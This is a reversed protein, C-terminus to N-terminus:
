RSFEEVPRWGNNTLILKIQDSGVLSTNPLMKALEAGAPMMAGPGWTYSVTTEKEGSESPITFNDISTVIAKSPCMKIYNYQGRLEPTAVDKFKDRITLIYDTQTWTEGNLEYNTESEVEKEMIGADVYPSMNFKNPGDNETATYRWPYTDSLGFLPEIVCGKDQILENIIKSFNEKSPEMPDSEFLSTEDTGPEADAEVGRSASTQESCGASLLVALLLSPLRSKEIKLIHM